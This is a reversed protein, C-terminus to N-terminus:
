QSVSRNALPADLNLCVLETHLGTAMKHRCTTCYMVSLSAPSKGKRGKKALTSSFDRLVFMYAQWQTNTHAHECFIIIHVKTIKMCDKCATLNLLIKVSNKYNNAKLDQQKEKPAFPGHSCSGLTLPM